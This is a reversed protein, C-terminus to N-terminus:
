SHRWVFIPITGEVNTRASEKVCYKGQGTGTQAKNGLPWEIATGKM